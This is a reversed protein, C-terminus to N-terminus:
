LGKEVMDLVRQGMDHLQPRTFRRLPGDIILMALGHV